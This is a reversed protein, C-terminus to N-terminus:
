RRAVRGNIQTVGGRVPVSRWPPRVRRGLLAKPAAAGAPGPNPGPQPLAPARLLTWDFWMGSPTGTPRVLM